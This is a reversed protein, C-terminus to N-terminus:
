QVIRSLVDSNAEQGKRGVAKIRGFVRIGSRLNKFTFERTSSPQMKWQTDEAPQEDAYEFIYSVANQVRRCSFKLEGTNIGDLIKFETPQMLATPSEGASALDFGSSLLMAKDGNSQADIDMALQRMGALLEEKAQNKLAILQRDGSTTKGLAESFATQLTTFNPLTPTTTPFNTNKTLANVVTLAKFNLHTDALKAYDLILKPTKMFKFLLRSSM